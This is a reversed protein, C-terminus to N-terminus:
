KKSWRRWVFFGVVGLFIMFPWISTLGIFFDVLGDWGNRLAKLLRNESVVKEEKIKQYFSIDLTSYDVRNSLFRLRGEISEIEARLDGIQKEIELIESIKNARKLLDQYRQEVQKKTKLRAEADVFEETVDTAQITKTDFHDVGKSVASVLQDFNRSPVRITISQVIRDYENETFENSLYGATADAAQRIRQYTSKLNSTEFKLTGTKILKLKFNPEVNPKQAEGPPPPPPTAESQPASADKANSTEYYNAPAKDCASTCYTFLMWLLFISKRM